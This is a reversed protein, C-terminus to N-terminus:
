RANERRRKVPVFAVSHEDSSQARSVVLDGDVMAAGCTRPIGPTRCEKYRPGSIGTKPCPPRRLRSWM